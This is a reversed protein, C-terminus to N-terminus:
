AGRLGITPTVWATVINPLFWSSDISMESAALRTTAPLGVGPNSRVSNQCVDAQRADDAAAKDLWKSWNGDDAVLSRYTGIWTQNSRELELILKERDEVSTDPAQFAIARDVCTAIDAVALKGDNESQLKRLSAGAIMLLDSDIAM